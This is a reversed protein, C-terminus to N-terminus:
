GIITAALEPDKERFGEILSNATVVRGHQSDMWMRLDHVSHCGTIKKFEDLERALDDANDEFERASAEMHQAYVQANRLEAM